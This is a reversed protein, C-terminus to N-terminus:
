WLSLIMPKDITFPKEVLIHTGMELAQLALEKHSSAPTCISVADLEEGLLKDADTFFKCPYREAIRKKTPDTDCIGILKCDQTQSYIRAHHSGMVGAGIIGIKVKM